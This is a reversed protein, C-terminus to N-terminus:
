GFCSATFGFNVAEPEPHNRAVAIRGPLGLLFIIAVVFGVAIILLVLFTIYDWRDVHFGVLDYM